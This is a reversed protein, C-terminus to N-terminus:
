RKGYVLDLVALLDGNVAEGAEARSRVEDPTLWEGGSFDDPNLKPQGEFPVEYVRTFCRLHHDHPSFAGAGQWGTVAVDLNLEERAERIFAQNCSEGAMVLGGVSFDLAGPWRTKYTARRPIFLEGAANRLFAVVGWKHKVGESASRWLVGRVEGADDLLDLLEDEGPELTHRLLTSHYRVRLDPRAAQLMHWLTHGEREFGHWEDEGGRLFAARMPLPSAPDNRNLTSDFADAWALLRATLNAPLNLEAPDLDGEGDPRWLPFCEYDALLRLTDSMPRITAHTPTADARM